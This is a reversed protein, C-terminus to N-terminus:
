EPPEWWEAIRYPSVVAASLVGEPRVPFAKRSRVAVIARITILTLGSVAVITGAEMFMTTSRRPDAASAAVSAALLCSLALGGQYTLAFFAEEARRARMPDSSRPARAQSARCRRAEDAQQRLAAAAALTGGGCFLLPLGESQLGLLIGLVVLCSTVGLMFADEPSGGGGFRRQLPRLGWQLSSSVVLLLLPYAAVGVVAPLSNEEVAQKLADKFVVATPFILCFAAVVITQCQLRVSEKPLTLMERGVRSLGRFWDVRGIPPEHASHWPLRATLHRAAALCLATALFLATCPALDAEEGIWFYALSGALQAGASSVWRLQGLDREVAGWDHAPDGAESTLVHETLEVDSGLLLATGVGYTIQGVVVAVVAVASWDYSASVTAGGLSAASFALILLGTSTRDRADMNRGPGLLPWTGSLASLAILLFALTPSGDVVRLLVFFIVGSAFNCWALVRVWRLLCRTRKTDM